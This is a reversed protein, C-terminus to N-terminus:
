KKKNESEYLHEEEEWQIKVRAEEGLIEEEELLRKIEGM